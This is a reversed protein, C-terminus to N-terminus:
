RTSTFDSNSLKSEISLKRGGLCRWQAPSTDIEQGNAICFMSFVRIMECFWFFWKKGGCKPYDTNKYLNELYNCIKALCVLCIFSSQILHSLNDKKFM